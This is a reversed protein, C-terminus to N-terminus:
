LTVRMRYYRQAGAANTDRFTQFYDTGGNTFIATWNTQSLNTSYEIISTRNTISGFTVHAVQSTKALWPLTPGAQFWVPLVASPLHKPGGGTGNSSVDVAQFGVKYVGAKTASLRRGHIHGFPDATPSGDTQTVRFMNSATQGPALSIFPVNTSNTEWFGFKGGDPGSLLSLRCYFLTGLSAAGAVPGGFPGTAPLAAVTINNQYYGAYRGANTFDLTKVYGSNAVFDAGNVWISQAGNTQAVAGANLHGHDQARLIQSSLALGCALATRLLQIKM